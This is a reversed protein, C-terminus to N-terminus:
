RGSRWILLTTVATGTLFLGLGILTVVRQPSSAVLPDLGNSSLRNVVFVAPAGVLFLATARAPATAVRIEHGIEAQTAALSGIEDFLDAADSGSRSANLVTLRVEHEIDPFGAAVAAAVEGIPAAHPSVGLASLDRDLSSASTVLAERLTSGSRLEAAVGDCFLASQNHTAPRARWVLVAVVLAFVLPLYVAGALVLLRRLDIGMAFAAALAIPVIV